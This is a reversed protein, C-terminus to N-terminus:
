KWRPEVVGEFITIEISFENNYSVPTIGHPLPTFVSPSKQRDNFVNFVDGTMTIKVVTKDRQDIVFRENDLLTGKVGYTQGGIDIVPDVTPGFFSIEALNGRGTENKIELNVEDTTFSTPFGMPLTFGEQELGLSRVSKFFSKEQIWLPDLAFFTLETSIGNGALEWNVDSAGVMYGNLYVGNVELRATSENAIDHEFIDIMRNMSDYMEQKSEGVINITLNYEKGYRLFRDINTGYGLVKNTSEFERKYDSFNHTKYSLPYTNFDVEGKAGIYKINFRM